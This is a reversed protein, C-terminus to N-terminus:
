ILIIKYGPFTPYTQSLRCANNIIRLKKQGSEANMESTKSKQKASTVSSTNRFITTTTSCNFYINVRM